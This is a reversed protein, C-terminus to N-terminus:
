ARLLNITTGPRAGAAQGPLCSTSAPPRGPGRALRAPAAPGGGPKGVRPGSNKPVGLVPFGSVVM